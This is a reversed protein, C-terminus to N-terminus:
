APRRGGRITRAAWTALPIPRYTDVRAREAFAGGDSNFMADHSFLAPVNALSGILRGKEIVKHDDWVFGNQLSSAYAFLPAAILIARRFRM